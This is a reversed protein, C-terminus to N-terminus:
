GQLELRGGRFGHPWLCEPPFRVEALMSTDIRRRYGTREEPPKRSLTGVVQLDPDRRAM